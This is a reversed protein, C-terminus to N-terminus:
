IGNNEPKTPPTFSYFEVKCYDDDYDIEESQIYEIVEEKTPKNKFTHHLVLAEEGMGGRDVEICYLEGEADPQTTLLGKSELFKIIADANKDHFSHQTIGNGENLEEVVSNRLVRLIEIKLKENAM